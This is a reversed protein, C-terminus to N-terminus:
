AFDGSQKQCDPYRRTADMAGPEQNARGKGEVSKKERFNYPQHEPDAKSFAL